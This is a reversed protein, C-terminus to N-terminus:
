EIPEDERRFRYVYKNRGGTEVFEKVLTRSEILDDLALQLTNRAKKNRRFSVRLDGLSAAGKFEDRIRREVERVTDAHDFVKDKAAHNIGDKLTAQSHRVVAYAIEMDGRQITKSLRCCALVSSLRVMQEPGRGWLNAETENTLGEIRAVEAEYLEEAGKDWDLRTKEISALKKLGDALSRPFEETSPNRQRPPRVKEEIILHRNLTGDVIEKSKCAAYFDQPIGTGLISLHVDYLVVADEKSGIDTVYVEGPKLGWLDKIRDLVEKECDMAKEGSVKAVFKGYEDMLSLVAKKEKFLRYFSVGSKFRSPGILGTRECKVLAEKPISLMEQKGSTSPGLLILYLQLCCGKAGSPGVVKESVLVTPVMLAPGLSFMNGPRMATRLYYQQLEGAYGPLGILKGDIKPEFDEGEGLETVYVAKRNRETEEKFKESELFNVECDQEHIHKAFIGRMLDQKTESDSKNFAAPEKKTQNKDDQRTEPLFSSPGKGTRRLFKPKRAKLFAEWEERKARDNAEIQEGCKRAQVVMDALEPRAAFEDLASLSLDGISVRYLVRGAAEDVEPTLVLKEVDVM